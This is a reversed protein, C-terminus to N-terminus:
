PLHIDCVQWGDIAVVRVNELLIIDAVSNVSRIVFIKNCNVTFFLHQCGPQRLINFYILKANFGNWKKLIIFKFKFHLWPLGGKKKLLATRM